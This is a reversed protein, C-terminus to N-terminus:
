AFIMVFCFVCKLEKRFNYAELDINTRCLRVNKKITCYYLLKNKESMCLYLGTIAILNQQTCLRTDRQVVPSIVFKGTIAGDFLINM